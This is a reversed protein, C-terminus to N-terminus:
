YRQYRIPLSNETKKQQDVETQYQVGQRELSQQVGQYKSVVQEMHSATGHRAIMMM